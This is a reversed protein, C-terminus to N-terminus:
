SEEDQNKGKGVRKWGSGRQPTIPLPDKHPKDDVVGNSEGKRLDLRSFHPRTYITLTMRVKVLQEQSIYRHYVGLM